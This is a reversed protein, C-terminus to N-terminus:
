KPQIHFPQSIVDQPQRTRVRFALHNLHSASVAPLRDLGPPAAPRLAAHAFASVPPGAPAVRGRPTLPSARFRLLARPIGATSKRGVPGFPAVSRWRLPSRLVQQPWAGGYPHATTRPARCPEPSPRPRQPTGGRLPPLPFRGACDSPQLSPSVDGVAATRGGLRVAFHRTKQSEKSGTRGLSVRAPAGQLAASLRKPSGM